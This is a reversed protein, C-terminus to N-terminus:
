AQQTQHSLIQTCKKVFVCCEHLSFVSNNDGQQDGDSQMIFVSSNPLEQHIDAIYKAIILVEQLGASLAVCFSTLFIFLVIFTHM